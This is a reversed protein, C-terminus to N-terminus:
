LGFLERAARDHRGDEDHQLRELPRRLLQESLREAMREVEAREAPGLTPIRRWLAALEVSRAESARDALARAAERQRECVTWARYADLTDEVLVDLRALLAAPRTRDDHHALDDISVFRSGLLRVLEDPVSPPASLDVVWAGGDALARCSAEGLKWPGSLAVVAGAFGHLAAAGPDMDIVTGGTDAALRAARQATRSALVLPRGTSVVAQAALAGMEGAGVVLVPGPRSSGRSTAEEIAVDALSPRRAPLWSRARRGAGLALDFIRDLGPALPGRRRAEQVSSRLQHLVQDEAVVASDRGVAVRIAHRAADVGTEVTVARIPESGAIERLTAAPGYLEVRHCTELLVSGAPRVSRLRAAVRVREALPVHRAHALLVAFEDTM